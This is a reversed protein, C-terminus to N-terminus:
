AKAATNKHAATKKLSYLNIYVCKQTIRLWFDAFINFTESVHVLRGFLMFLPSNHNQKIDLHGIKWQLPFIIKKIQRSNRVFYRLHTGKNTPSVLIEKLCLVPYTSPLEWVLLWSSENMRKSLVGVQSLCLSVSLCVYPWLMADRPYFCHPANRLTGTVDGRDGDRTKEGQILKQPTLNTLVCLQKTGVFCRKARAAYV